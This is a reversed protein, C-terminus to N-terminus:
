TSMDDPYQDPITLKVNLHYGREHLKVIVQSTKQRLIIKDEGRLLERKIKHIEESCVCLPNNFIFEHVFKLVVM